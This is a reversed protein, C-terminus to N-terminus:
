RWAAPTGGFASLRSGPSPSTPAARTAWGCTCVIAKVADPATPRLMRLCAASSCGPWCWRLRTTASIPPLFQTMTSASASRSSAAGGEGVGREAEGALLAAGRRAREDVLPDGLGQELAQVAGDLLQQDVLRLPEADVHRRDDLAVRLLPDFPEDRRCAFLARADELRTLRRVVAEEDSRRHDVAKGGARPHELLLDEPGHERHLRDARHVLRALDDGVLPEREGAAQERAIGGGDLADARAQGDAVEVDVPVDGPRHDGALREAAVPEGAGPALGAPGIVQQLEDLRAHDGLVRHAVTQHDLPTSSASCSITSASLTRRPRGTSTSSM